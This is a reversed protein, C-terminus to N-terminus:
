VFPPVVEEMGDQLTSKVLNAAAEPGTWERYPMAVRGLLEKTVPNSCEVFIHLKDQAIDVGVRIDFQFLEGEILPRQWWERREDM